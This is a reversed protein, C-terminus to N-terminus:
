KRLAKPKRLVESMIIGKVLSDRNFDIPSEKGIENKRIPSVLPERQKSEELPIESKVPEKYTKKTDEIEKKEEIRDEDDDLETIEDIHRKIADRTDELYTKLTSPPDVRRSPNKKKKQEKDNEHKKMSKLLGAGVFLILPLISEFFDM